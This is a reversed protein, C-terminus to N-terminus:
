NLYPIIIGMQLKTDWLWIKKNEMKLIEANLAYINSNFYKIYEIEADISENLEQPSSSLKISAIYEGNDSQLRCERKNSKISYQCTRDDYKFIANVSYLGYSTQSLFEIKNNDPTENNKQCGIFIIACFIISSWMFQRIYSKMPEM